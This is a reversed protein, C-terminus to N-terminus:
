FMGNSNGMMQAALEANKKAEAQIEDEEAKTTDEAAGAKVTAAPATEETRQAIFAAGKAKADAKRATAAARMAKVFDNVSTGNAKAEEAEAEFGELTLDNIGQVREREEAVAQNRIEEALAPNEALLQERTCDKIEMTQPEEKNKNSTSLGAVPNDNSGDTLKESKQYVKSFVAKAAGALNEMTTPVANGGDTDASIQIDKPVNNYLSCMVALDHASVSAVAKETELLEDCFGEEVARKATFWTEEDMWQKIQAEDKGCKSAYMEHFTGEMSRLHDVTKEIENANGWAITMPNHIMFESGDAIVVKAGPVTAFLTAASACLGEIMVRVSSFEANIIMSRMAVAAFVDGGPSNVRLNLKTAGNKKADKLEKDFDEPTYEDGWFKDGAIHSYLMVEATDNEVKMRVCFAYRERM